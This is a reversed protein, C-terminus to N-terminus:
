IPEILEREPHNAAKRPLDIVEVVVDDCAVEVAKQDPGERREKM